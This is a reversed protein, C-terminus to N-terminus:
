KLMPGLGVKTMTEEQSLITHYAPFDSDLLARFILRESSFPDLNQHVPETTWVKVPSHTSPVTTTM